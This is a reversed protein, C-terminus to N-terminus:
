RARRPSRSAEAFEHVFAEQGSTQIARPIHQRVRQIADAPSMGRWTLHCALMMGTRGVGATCHFAIKSGLRLAGALEGCLALSADLVPVGMGMIPFHRGTIGYTTLHHAPLPEPTLTVLVGIGARQVAALDALLKGKLGPQRMGAASPTIWRIFSDDSSVDTGCDLRRLIDNYLPFM